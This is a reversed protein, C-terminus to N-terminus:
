QSTLGHGVPYLGPLAIPLKGRFPIEGSIARVAALEGQPSTDYTVIYSPLEPIHTLVYPSGYVTFVVPKQLASLDKLLKVENPTLDISGKYAAVRIFGNIVVADAMEALRRAMDFENLSSDDDIRVTVARPFRKPLEATVTGGPVGERWGNRSDLINIQAVRLDPSPKLPLAHQNDRVLTIALDEVHQAFDLNAKTGVVNMLANVDVFRNKPDQLNLKAKATLVRRVSEDIRQETIRGSKVAAKIAEFSAPIDPPLLVIDEGAEIARVSAEAGPFNTTVGKMTMSDTFLLGGYHLEDRLIGTMVRKSLTSPVGKESEIQPLWIHASMFADVGAAVAARFPPFEVSELRQQPVDLVPMELHSDSAVDGHGPFHKATAIQGNDQAGKIYAQVFRSVSAPDEGFSRINIIPNRPNNQVDAVPYFNVNVGIARGERATLKGAEYAINTDGTAGMSMGLPIRTAGFLVYGVGGEFNDAILLPVRALRQMENVELAIVAPDGGFVHIGGVHYDVIDRRTQQFETSEFSKFSNLSFGPMLLQGIKEDLTMSHLTKDVWRNQASSLLASLLLTAIV